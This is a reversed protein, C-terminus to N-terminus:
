KESKLDSFFILENTQYEKMPTCAILLKRAKDHERRQRAQAKKLIFVFLLDIKNM